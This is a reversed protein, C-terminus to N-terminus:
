WKLWVVLEKQELQKSSLTESKSWVPRSWSREIKHKRGMVPFVPM